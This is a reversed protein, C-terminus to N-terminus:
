RSMNAMNGMDHGAHPDVPEQKPVPRPPAPARRPEPAREAKAQPAATAAQPPATENTVAEPPAPPAASQDNAVAELDNAPVAVNNPSQGSSCAALSLAAATALISRKM